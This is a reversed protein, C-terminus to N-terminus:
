TKVNSVDIEGNMLKPLLTNRLNSLCQNEEQNFIVLNMLTGVINEFETLIEDPPILVSTKRLDGQTILPQTSGRNLSTYDIGQLIHYLYEYYSSKIVLTNDSTWCPSCFRQVVGHTGVRGIVIIKEDHNFENTYGMVSAAGVLPIFVDKTKNIQKMPPRKGTSVDSIDSLVGIKWDDPMVGGFPEFDIFWSKFIAQAQKELNENIDTNLEIKDDIASLVAAIQRQESIDSPVRVKISRMINGSVEKFTTGSGMNEINDKNFKLLYYLFMYDTNANPIVSKFGQNTCMEKAAIAVYGIPARSSFLVTNKPLLRTSCSKLGIETINREGRYIYRRSFTSLDKPTIWSINGDEYNEPNKTSPTAGGVVEGLDAITCERWESKM